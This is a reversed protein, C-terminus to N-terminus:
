EGIDLDAEVVVVSVVGRGEVMESLEAMLRTTDVRVAADLDEVVMEDPSVMEFGDHVEVDMKRHATTWRECEM